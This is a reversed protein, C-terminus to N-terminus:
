IVSRIMVSFKHCYKGKINRIGAFAKRESEVHLKWVPAMNM